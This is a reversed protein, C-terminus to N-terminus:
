EREVIWTGNALVKRYKLYIDDASDLRGDRGKSRVSLIIFSETQTCDIILASQWADLLQNESNRRLLGTDHSEIAEIMADFDIKPAGNTSLTEDVAHVLDHIVTACQTQATM